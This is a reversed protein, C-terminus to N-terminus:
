DTGVYIEAISLADAVEIWGHEAVLKIISKLPENEPEMSKNEKKAKAKVQEWSLGHEFHIGKEQAFLVHPLLFFVIILNKM